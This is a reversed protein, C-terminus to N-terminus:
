RELRWDSLERPGFFHTPTGSQTVNELLWPGDLRGMVVAQTPGGPLDTGISLLQTLGWFLFYNAKVSYCVPSYLGNVLSLANYATFGNRLSHRINEAERYSM